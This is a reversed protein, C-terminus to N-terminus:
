QVESHVIQSNIIRYDNSTMVLIQLGNDMLHLSFSVLCIHATVEYIKAYLSTDTLCIRILWYYEVLYKAMRVRSIQNGMFHGCAQSGTHDALINSNTTFLRAM